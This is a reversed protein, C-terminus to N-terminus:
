RLVAAGGGLGGCCMLVLAIALAIGVGVGIMKWVSRPATGRLEGTQGNVLVRFVKDGYRYAGIWVPVLVPDGELHHLISSARLAIAGQANQLIARHREEMEDAAEQRAVSRTLEGLEFPDQAREADFASMAAEDYTGLSALERRTISKSAPVLVQAFDRDEQGAIPAKGSRTSAKVLGTWHTEVRGSWAWAPLLLRRLELRSSRLDNPYWWSSTAFTHFAAQAQASEVVFPVYRGPQEVEEMPAFAVLEKASAGCFLCSPLPKGPVAAVAGGCSQCRVAQLSM